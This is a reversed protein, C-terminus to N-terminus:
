KIEKIRRKDRKVLVELLIGSNTFLELIMKRITYRYKYVEFYQLVKYFIVPDEFYEPHSKSLSTLDKTSSNLFVHNCLNGILKFLKKLKSNTDFDKFSLDILSDKNFDHLGKSEWTDIFKNIERPLSILISQNYVDLKTCWGLDDLIEIGEYTSSTLGLVHFGCVKIDIFPSKEVIKIIDEITGEVDLAEIGHKSTSIFGISWLSAKLKSLEIDSSEDIGNDLITAYYRIFNIFENMMGSEIIMNFGEETKVLQGFFNLPLERSKNTLAKEIDKLYAIYKKGNIWSHFEQEILGQDKLYDIGLDTSFFSMILRDCEENHCLNLIEISPQKKIIKNLNEDSIKCFNNLIKVIKLIIEKDLYYIQEILLEIIFDNSTINIDNILRSLLNLTHTKIKLNESNLFKSLLIRLHGPDEVFKVEDMILILVDDRKFSDDSIHYIISFFKWQELLKIGNEDKSLIGIMKFYGYSLTTALREKSFIQEAAYFGSFPDLQALCEAIQPVIKNENLLRRGEQSALLSEIIDCGLKVFRVSHKTKKANSFKRKFPRYFSLLRKFFRTTKNIEDLRKGNMFPGKFLDSILDCNWKSFNKSTLVKTDIIMQKLRVDDIFFNTSNKFLKSNELINNNYKDFNSKTSSLKLSQLGLNIRGKNSKRTLKELQFIISSDKLYGKTEYHKDVFGDILDEPILNSSINFIETLLFGAKTQNAEDTSNELVLLLKEVIGCEILITLIYALYQTNLLFENELKLPVLVIKQATSTNKKTLPNILLVDLFLDLLKSVVSNVPYTLCSILETLPQGENLCFAHLGAFSKLFMSIILTGNQIKENNIYGKVPFDTFISVLKLVDAIELIKRTDPTNMLTILVNAALHSLDYPGDIIFQLISEISILDPRLLSLECITEICITRLKDDQQEAVSIIANTIGKTIENVGNPTDIFKRVLKLAHEREIQHSSDKSLSIIIMVDLRLAMLSKISNVDNVVYRCIRYGTAVVEKKPHILLNQLRHGFASFVLDAKIYPYKIFLEVLDNGKTVLYDPEQGKEGLSTLLDTVTFTPSAVGEYDFQSFSEDDGESDSATLFSSDGEFSTM